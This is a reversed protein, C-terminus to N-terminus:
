GAYIADWVLREAKQIVADRCEGPM